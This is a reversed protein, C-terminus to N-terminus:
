LAGTTEEPIKSSACACATLSTTAHYSASATFFFFIDFPAYPWAASSSGCGPKHSHIDIVDLAVAGIPLQSSMIM